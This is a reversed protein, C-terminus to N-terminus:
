NVEKLKSQEFFELNIVKQGAYAEIVGGVLKLSACKSLSLEEITGDGLTLRVMKM